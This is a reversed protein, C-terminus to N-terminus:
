NSGANQFLTETYNGKILLVLDISVKTETATSFTRWHQRVTVADDLLYMRPNM